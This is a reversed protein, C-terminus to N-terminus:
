KSEKGQRTKDAVHVSKNETTPSKRTRAKVTDRRATFQTRRGTTPLHFLADGMSGTQAKNQCSLCLKCYM